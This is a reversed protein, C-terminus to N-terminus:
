RQAIAEWSQEREEAQTVDLGIADARDDGSTLPAQPEEKRCGVLLLSGMLALLILTNKM